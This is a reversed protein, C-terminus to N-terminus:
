EKLFDKIEAMVENIPPTDTFWNTRTIENTCACYIQSVLEKLRLPLPEPALPCIEKWRQRDKAKAEEAALHWPSNRYYIRLIEKSVPLDEFTFRCEDLTGLVDVLMLGRSHDFGVEIKGDENVLGIKAFESSILKNVTNAMEKLDNIEVLSLGSIERAEGWTMYRDTIELKTSVDLIPIEMKQNPVPMESLGLDEPKAEGTQLRKFVSSGPPLSNRYIVELPILFGGKEEQYRAYNYRNGELEPKIVQLMKVEMTNVPSKIHSIKNARDEEVLGIYHTPIGMEELKEFFYAGLLAIAAGKHDILDPMEGWDFVSYRDSFVFRGRGPREKTPGELIKLDKVSGM